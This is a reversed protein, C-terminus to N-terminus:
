CARAWRQWSARRRESRTPYRGPAQPLYAQRRNNDTPERGFRAFRERIKGLARRPLDVRRGPRRRRGRPDPRRGDSRARRDFDRGRGAGAGGAFFFFFFFFFIAAAIRGRNDGVSVTRYLDLGIASMRRAIERTNTDLSEGLLLETGITLIEAQM